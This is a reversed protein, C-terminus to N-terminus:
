GENIINTYSTKTIVHYEISDVTFSLYVRDEMTTTVVRDDTAKGAAVAMAVNLLTTFEKTIDDQYQYSIDQPSYRQYTPHLTLLTDDTQNDEDPIAVLITEIYAVDLIEVKESIHTGDVDYLVTISREIADQVGVVSPYMIRSPKTTINDWMPIIFFQGIIFLDPMINKWTEEDGVGSNLLYEKIAQRIDLTGPVAGKYLINFPIYSVTNDNPDIYKTSFSIYNTYDSSQIKSSLSSVSTSASNIIATYISTVSSPDYLLDVSIPPVVESITSLPYGDGFTENNIWFKFSIVTGSINIDFKLWDLITFNADLTDYIYVSNSNNSIELSGPVYNGFVTTDALLETELEEVTRDINRYLVYETINFINAIDSVSSNILISVDDVSFKQDIVLQLTNTLESGLHALRATRTDDIEFRDVFFSHQVTNFQGHTVATNIDDTMYKSQDLFSEDLIFGYITM